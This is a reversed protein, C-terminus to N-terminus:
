HLMASRQCRISIMLLLIFDQDCFIILTLGGLEKLYAIKIKVTEAFLANKKVSACRKGKEKKRKGQKRNGIAKSAFSVCSIRIWYKRKKKYAKPSYYHLFPNVGNIGPRPVQLAFGLQAERM